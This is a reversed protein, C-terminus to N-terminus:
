VKSLSQEIFYMDIEGKNRAHIKGRHSCLVADKVLAYTTGSINIKGPEGSSEMRSAINVTDGWIDYAFKKDGVIGAVVPGTHIGIRIEFPQLGKNMREQRHTKMFTQIEMAAHVIDMAHTASPVPLGAACMYADGITKIKEIPYLSIIHDFAKFLRDIEAVLEVPSLTETIRTFDKFDTFMVTVDDLQKAEASGKKKLEKAIQVPLINLLLTDSQVQYYNKQRAFYFVMMFIISSVGTLNITFFLYIQETTLQNSSPLWPQIVASVVVLAVYAALWKTANTPKEFLLSGLPCHLGWLIVASGNVFGGLSWMLFFPLLLILLLQTFRFTSFKCTWAFYVLSLFSFIAYSIPILAAIREGFLWYMIGWITGALMFPVASIVLMSKQLRIDDSDEPVAGINALWSLFRNSWTDKM